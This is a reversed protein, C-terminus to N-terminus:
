EGGVCFRIKSGCEVCRGGTNNRKGCKECLVWKYPGLLTLLDLVLENGTDEAIKILDDIGHQVISRCMKEEGRALEILLEISAEEEKWKMLEQVLGLNRLTKTNEENRLVANKLTWIVKTRTEKSTDKSKLVDMLRVLGGSERVENQVKEGGMYMKHTLSECTTANLVDGEAGLTEVVQRLGHRKRWKASEEEDVSTDRLVKLTREAGITVLDEVVSMLKTKYKDRVGLNEVILTAHKTKIERKVIEVLGNRVCLEANEDDHVAAGIARMMEERAKVDDEKDLCKM